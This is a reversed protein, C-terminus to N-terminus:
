PTVVLSRFTQRAAPLKKCEVGGAMVGGDDSLLQVLNSQPIAFAAEPRLNGLDVGAVPTAADGARGSWRYLAFSGQDATPGAVILYASGVLTISRIGRRDLDLEIPTGFKARKGEILEAPNELPIVLARQHPLPNRLGILLKGDRTAALGEINLGGEAEAALRAADALRYPKLADSAEIDNLLRTYPEGVPRLSPPQGPLVETAFFRHRDQRAKGSSNRAHSTIWYTRTGISAAGEIDSERDTQTGLFKSLNLVGVAKAQGRRYVHLTNNEDNGVFHEGDLAVAASADCPGTYKIAEEAVCPGPFGAAVLCAIAAITSNVDASERRSVAGGARDQM